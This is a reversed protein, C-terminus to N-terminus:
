KISNVMKDYAAQDWHSTPGLISMMALGGKGEFIVLMQRFANGNMDGEQIIVKGPKGRITADYENITRYNELRRGSQRQMQEQMQQITADNMEMSSPMQIIILVSDIDKAEHIVFTVGLLSMSTGASFGAPPDFSAIKQSANSVEQPDSQVSNSVTQGVGRFFLFAVACAILCLVALVAVVIIIIKTTNSKAPAQGLPATPPIEVPPLDM